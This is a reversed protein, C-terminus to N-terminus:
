IGVLEEVDEEVSPTNLGNLKLWELQGKQHSCLIAVMDTSILKERVEQIKAELFLVASGPARRSYSPIKPDPISM